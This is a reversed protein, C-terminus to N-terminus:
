KTVPYTVPTVKEILFQGESDSRVHGQNGEKEVMGCALISDSPLAQLGERKLRIFGM